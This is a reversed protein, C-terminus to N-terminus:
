GTAILTIAWPKDPFADVRVYWLVNKRSKSPALKISGTTPSSGSTGDKIAGTGDLITVRSADQYSADIGQGPKTEFPGAVTSGKPPGNITTPLQTGSAPRPQTITASWASPADSVQLNYNGSFLNGGFSADIPAIEGISGVLELGSTGYVGVTTVKTGTAPLKFHVITMGSASLTFPTDTMASSGSPGGSLQITAPEQVTSRTAAASTPTAAVATTPATVTPTVTATTTSHSSEQTSTCGGTGTILVLMVAISAERVRFRM